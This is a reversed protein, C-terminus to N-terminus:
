QNPADRVVCGRNALSRDAQLSRLFQATTVRDLSDHVYRAIWRLVFGKDISQELRQKCVRRLAIRAIHHDILRRPLGEQVQRLDPMHPSFEGALCFDDPNDASM